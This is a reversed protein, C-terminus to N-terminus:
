DAANAAAPTGVVVEVARELQLDAASEPDNSV